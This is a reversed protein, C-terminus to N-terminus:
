AAAADLKKQAEKLYRGYGGHKVLGLCLLTDYRETFEAVTMERKLFLKAADMLIQEGYERGKKKADPGAIGQFISTWYGGTYQHDEPAWDSFVRKLDRCFQDVSQTQKSTHEFEPSLAIAFVMLGVLTYGSSGLVLTYTITELKLEMEFPNPIEFLKAMVLVLVFAVFQVAVFYMVTRRLERRNHNRQMEIAVRVPNVGTKAEWAHEFFDPFRRDSALGALRSVDM